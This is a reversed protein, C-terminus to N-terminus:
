YRSSQQNKTPRPTYLNSAATSTLTGTVDEAGHGRRRASSFPLFQTMQTMQTLSAPFATMPKVTQCPPKVTPWWRQRRLSTTLSSRRGSGLAAPLADLSLLHHRWVVMGCSVEHVLESAENPTSNPPNWKLDPVRRKTSTAMGQGALSHHHLPLHESSTRREAFPSM